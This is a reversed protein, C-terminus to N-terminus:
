FLSLYKRHDTTLEFDAKLKLLRAFEAADGAEAALFIKTRGLEDCANIAVPTEKTKTAMSLTHTACTQNTKNKGSFLQSFVFSCGFVFNFLIM